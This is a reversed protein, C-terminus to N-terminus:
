IADRHTTFDDPPHNQVDTIEKPDKPLDNIIKAYSTGSYEAELHHQLLDLAVDLQAARVQELESHYGGRTLIAYCTSWVDQLEMMHTLRTGVDDAKLVKYDGTPEGLM